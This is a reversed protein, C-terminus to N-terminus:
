EYHACARTVLGAGDFYFVEAALGRAGHYNIVVSDIGVLVNILEFHLNPIKELAMRWYAAVAAKGHLKGSAQEAIQVIYPSSMEFDPTYHSLIEDLDHANWAAAWHHAFREAFERTLM